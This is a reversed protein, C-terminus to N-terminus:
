KKDSVKEMLKKIAYEFLGCVIIIWMLPGAIFFVYLNPQLKDNTLSFDLIAKVGCVTWAVGFVILGAEINNM